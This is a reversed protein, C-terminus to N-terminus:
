ERDSEPDTPAPGSGTSRERAARLRQGPGSAKREPSKGADLADLDPAELAEPTTADRPAVPERRSAEERRPEPRPM